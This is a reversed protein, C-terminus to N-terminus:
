KTFINKITYITGLVSFAYLITHISFDKNILLYVIIGIWFSACYICNVVGDLKDWLLNLLGLDKENIESVKMRLPKMLDSLTLVYGIGITSLLYYIYETM